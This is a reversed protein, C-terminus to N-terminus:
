AYDETNIIYFYNGDKKHCHERAESENYTFLTPYLKGKKNEGLLYIKM